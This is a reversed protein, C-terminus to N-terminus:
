SICAPIGSCATFLAALGAGALFEFLDGVFERAREKKKKRKICFTILEYGFFIVSLAPAIISAAGLLAHGISFYDDFLEVRM